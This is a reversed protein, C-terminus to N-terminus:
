GHRAVIWEIVTEPWVGETQIRHLEHGGNPGLHFTPRTNPDVLQLSGELGLSGPYEAIGNALRAPLPPESGQASDDWLEDIRKLVDPTIEVWVGWYCPRAEGRVPVPMVVRLFYQRRTDAADRVGCKDSTLFARQAREAEPVQYYALPADFTPELEGADHPTGCKACHFQM